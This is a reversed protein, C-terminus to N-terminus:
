CNRRPEGDHCVAHGVSWAGETVISLMCSYYQSAAYFKETSHPARGYILPFETPGILGTIPRSDPGSVHTCYDTLFNWSPVVNVAKLHIIAAIQRM